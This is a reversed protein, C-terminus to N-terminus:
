RRQRLRQESGSSRLGHCVNAPHGLFVPGFDDDDDDDDITMEEAGVV